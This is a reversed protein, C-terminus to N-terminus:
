KAMNELQVNELNLSLVEARQRIRASLNHLTTREIKLDEVCSEFPNSKTM